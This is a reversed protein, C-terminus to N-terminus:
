SIALKRYKSFAVLIFTVCRIPVNEHQTKMSEVQASAAAARESEAIAVQVRSSWSARAQANFVCRQEHV